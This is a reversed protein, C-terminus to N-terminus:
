DAVVTLKLEGNYTDAKLTSDITVNFTWNDFRVIGTDNHGSNFMAQNTSLNASSNAVVDAIDFTEVNTIDADAPYAVVNAANIYDSGSNTLNACNAWMTWAGPSDRYDAITVDNLLNSETSATGSTAPSFTLDDTNLIELVGAQVVINLDAADNNAARAIFGDQPIFSLGGANFIMLTAVVLVGGVIMQRSVHQRIKSLLLGEKMKVECKNYSM